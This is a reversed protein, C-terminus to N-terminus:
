IGYETFCNYVFQGTSIPEYTVGNEPHAPPLVPEVVVDYSTAYFFAIALRERHRPSVVRHPTAPLLGNTWRTMMDGANLVSAGEVPPVDIWQEDPDQVQLGGVKEHALVTVVEYDCHTGVTFTDEETDPAQFYHLLRTQAHPEACRSAFFDKDLGLGVSIASLVEDALGKAARQYAQIAPRFGPLRPPWQNPTSRLVDGPGRYTNPGEMGCDFIEHMAGTGETVGRPVFGHYNNANRYHIVEREKEDQGFFEWGASFASRVTEAPVGHGTVYAFGTRQFSDVLEHAIKEDNNARWDTLDVLSIGHGVSKM